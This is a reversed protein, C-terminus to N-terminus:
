GGCDAKLVWEGLSLCRFLGDIRVRGSVGMGGDHCGVRQADGADETVHSLSQRGMFFAVCGGVEAGGIFGDGEEGM